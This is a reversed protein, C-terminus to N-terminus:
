NCQATAIRQAACYPCPCTTGELLKALLVHAHIVNDRHYTLENRFDELPKTDIDLSQAISDPPLLDNLFAATEQLMPLFEDLKM